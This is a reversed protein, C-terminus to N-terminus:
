PESAMVAPSVRQHFTLGLAMYVGGAVFFGLLWNLDTGGLALAIPGDYLPSRMTLTGILMGSALAIWASLTHRPLKAGEPISGPHVSGAGYVWHRRYGDCMWIAGYPGVWVLLLAVFDNLVATFDAVFVIVAVLVTSVLVDTLTAVWRRVNLGLSQLSLGSSYFVPVNSAVSGVIVALVYLVFLWGPIFPKLGAVPDSMDGLSAWMAGMATSALGSIFTWWFVRNFIQRGPTHTPLYRVWDPGNFLYGISQSAMVGCATMFAAITATTSLAAHSTGAMSWDVQFCTYVLVPLLVAGLAYAAYRQLFVMTAHGLMAVGGSLVLQLLIGLLKQTSDNGEWGALRFLALLAYVGFVAGIVEYAVSAIWACLANFFNGRIGFVARSLTTVPLGARVTGISALGLYAYPLNGLVCAALAWWLSLGFTVGVCGLVISLVNLNNGLWLPGVQRLTMNREVDPIHEFGRVEVGFLPNSDAISAEAPAAATALPTYSSDNASSRGTGISHM